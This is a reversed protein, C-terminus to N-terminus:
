GRMKTVMEPTDYRLRRGEWVTDGATDTVAYAEWGSSADVNEVAIVPLGQEYLECLAEVSTDAQIEVATSVVMRAYVTYYSM